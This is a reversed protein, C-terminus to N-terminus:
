HSSICASVSDSCVFNGVSLFGHMSVLLISSPKERTSRSCVFGLLVLINLVLSSAIIAVSITSLVAVEETSYEHSLQTINSM